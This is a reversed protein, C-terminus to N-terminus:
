ADSTLRKWPWLRATVPGILEDHKVPGFTRSDISHAHHDGVLFYEGAGLQWARGDMEVQENPLGVVRKVFAQSGGLAAPRAAVLEGRRPPRTEYAAQDIFVLQGPHLLPAMSHGHVRMLRGLRLLLPLPVPKSRRPPKPKTSSTPSKQSWM